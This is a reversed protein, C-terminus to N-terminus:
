EELCGAIGVNTEVHHTISLPVVVLVEQQLSMLGMVRVTIHHSMYSLLYVVINFTVNVVCRVMNYHVMSILLLVVVHRTTRIVIPLATHYHSAGRYSLGHQSTSTHQNLHTGNVQHSATTSTFTPVFASPIPLHMFLPQSSKYKAGTTEANSQCDSASLVPIGSGSMARAAETSSTM